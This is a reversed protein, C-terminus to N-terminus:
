EPPVLFLGKTPAKMYSPAKQPKAKHIVIAKRLKTKAMKAVKTAMAKTKVIEKKKPMLASSIAKQFSFDSNHGARICTIHSSANSHWSFAMQKAMNVNPNNAITGSGL